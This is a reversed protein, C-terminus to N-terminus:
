KKKAKKPAPAPRTYGLAALPDEWASIESSGRATLRYYRRSSEVIKGDRISKLPGGPPPEEMPEEHDLEVLGLERCLRFYKGFSEYTPPRVQDARARTQNEARWADKLARHIEGIYAPGQELHQKIFAGTRIVSAARGRM